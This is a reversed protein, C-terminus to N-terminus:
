VFRPNPKRIRPENIINDAEIGEKRHERAIHTERNDQEVADM